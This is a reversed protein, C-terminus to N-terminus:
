YSTADAADLIFTVHKIEWSFKNGLKKKKWKICATNSKSTDVFFLEFSKWDSYRWRTWGRRVSLQLKIEWFKVVSGISSIRRHPQNSSGFSLSYFRYNYYFVILELHLKCRKKQWCIPRDDLATDTSTGRPREFYMVNEYVTTSAVTKVLLRAWSRVRFNKGRDGPSLLHQNIKM